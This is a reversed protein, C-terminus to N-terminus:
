DREIKNPLDCIFMKDEQVFDICLCSDVIEDPLIVDRTGDCSLFCEKIHPPIARVDAIIVPRCIVYCCGTEQLVLIKEIRAYCGAYTRVFTTDSKSPRRFGTSHFVQKKQVFREYEVADSVAVGCRSYLADQEEASLVTKNGTGLLSLGDVCLFNKVPSYGLFGNCLRKEESALLPSGLLRQLQQSMVVREVIQDPLGKAASIQRVITGNGGEFVFASHAWLPGLSRACIGLHLLAHVNYTMFAVGYLAECRSVFNKLLSEAKGIELITLEEQLLIYIGECLKSLHRWYEHHLIDNLCPLAYFLLWNRWESAKWHSREQVSRPLRTICHPPKISLLRADIKSLATPAGSYFREDSNSSSLITETLQKAAGQLVCHMYEVSYGNVLYLGKLNMLASPGKLGNITDRFRSALHMESKVRDSTRQEVSSVTTYRM